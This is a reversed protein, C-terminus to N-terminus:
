RLYKIEFEDGHDSIIAVVLLGTGNQIHKLFKYFVKFAEDKHNLFKVMDM